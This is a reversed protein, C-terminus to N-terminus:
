KNILKEVLAELRAVKDKLESVEEKLEVVEKALSITAVMNAGSYDLSLTDDDTKTVAEPLIKQWDQAISGLRTTTKDYKYNFSVARLNAIDESKLYVPKINDKLTEDSSVDINYKSVIRDGYIQFTSNSTSTGFVIGYKGVLLIFNSEMLIRTDGAPDDFYFKLQSNLNQSTYKYPNNELGIKLECFSVQPNMIYSETRIFPLSYTSDINSTTFDFFGFDQYYLQLNGPSIVTGATDNNVTIRNIKNKESVQINNAISSLMLVKDTGNAKYNGSSDLEKFVFRFDGGVFNIRKNKEQVALQTNPSTKVSITDKEVSFRNDFDDDIHKVVFKNDAIQVYDKFNACYKNGETVIIGYENPSTEVNGTYYGLKFNDLHAHVRGNLNITNARITASTSTINLADSDDLKFKLQDSKILLDSGKNTQTYKTRLKFRFGEENATEPINNHTTGYDSVFQIAGYSGLTEAEEQQSVNIHGAVTDDQANLLNITTYNQTPLSNTVTQLSLENWESADITDGNNKKTYTYAM